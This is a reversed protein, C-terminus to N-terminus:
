YGHEDYNEKIKKLNDWLIHRDLRHNSAYICSFLWSVQTQRVKIVAHIEQNTTAVDEPDLVSDDWLIILGGSNGVSAVEIMSTFPFDDLLSQHSNMKTEILAVLPPKHWDLLARFNKRFDPGNCRRCNWIILNMPGITPTQSSVTQRQLSPRSVNM